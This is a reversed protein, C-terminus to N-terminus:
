QKMYEPHLYIWTITGSDYVKAFKHEEMIMDETKNIVDIEENFLKCLNHKQCMIRTYYRESEIHAWVYNPSSTREETFGLSAYLSGRTHARDSYSVISDYVFNTVFYKFLRSAGGVISTNMLNCFRTLEWCVGQRKKGIVPRCPSFSMCSYISGDRDKLAINVKSYMGGQRHNNDYFEKAEASSIQCLNLKRAYLKHENMGLLNKIMSQIVDRRRIWEYGFIHFLFVGKSLCEDTKNKHYSIEKASGGWPDRFSSNHTVTPNCEIALNYKPLYIDLELPYIVSRCHQVIDIEPDLNRLFELVEYEMSSSGQMCLGTEISLANYTSSTSMGISEALEPYTPKHDFTSQIYAQPDKKFLLYNERKELDEIKSAYESIRRDSQKKKYEPSQLVHSYGYRDLTTEAAKKRFEEVKMINDVGYKDLCTGQYRDLFESTQTYWEAGYRELNGAKVKEIVDPSSMPSPGGYKEECTAKKKMTAAEIEQPSASLWFDHMANSGIHLGCEGHNDLLTRQRRATIDKMDDDSKSAWTQQVCEKFKSSQSFTDVGYREICTKRAADRIEQVQMPNSVGYRETCTQKRKSVSSGDALTSKLSNSLKARVEESQSAVEVGYRELNTSRIKSKVEDLQFVNDVGYKSRVAEISRRTSYENRCKRSSCVKGLANGQAINADQCFEAGCIVCRSYHHSNCTNARNRNRGSAIFRTGCYKCVRICEGEKPSLDESSNSKSFVEIDIKM